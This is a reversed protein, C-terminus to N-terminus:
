TSGHNVQTLFITLFYFGPNIDVKIKKTELYDKKILYIM